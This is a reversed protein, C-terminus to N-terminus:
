QSGRWRSRLLQRLRARRESDEWWDLVRNISRRDCDPRQHGVSGHPAPAAYGGARRRRPFGAGHSSQPSRQAPRGGPAPVSRNVETWDAVSPRPLGAAHAVATLHLIVNTSGGFAAHVVMANRVAASTLIERSPVAREVMDLAARASRKRWIWGSPIARHPSRRTRCPSHRAGRGGGACTAPTGLFQCGGGPSACARCGAEAAQELTMEGQSFRAGISQVRGADEGNEPLLTVGGPILICPLDRAAALAMMMAPLGKDCTAVGIVGSRTPLSRILRGM